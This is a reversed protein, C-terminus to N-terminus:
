YIGISKASAYKLRDGKQFEFNVKGLRLAATGVQNVVTPYDQPGNVIKPADLFTHTHGGIILDIGEVRTALKLDDIKQNSYSHGLHSLCVILDCNKSKLEQVMESGIGVPDLYKTNGYNKPAVLGDLEIGLGFVGVKLGSKKFIKYPLFAGKLLNQSFDYNSSIFRFDANPLQEYIGELGNDFEHNGLTSADYGMRSMLKLELEGGYFNFYPTGQFIDGADLLLVDTEEAKVKELITAMKTLGGQNSWRSDDNPFPEIRSHIDNTHLITIKRGSKAFTSDAAFLSGGMSVGASTLLGKRLFERREM